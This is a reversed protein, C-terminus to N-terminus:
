SEVQKRLVKLEGDAQALDAVLCAIFNSAAILNRANNSHAQFDIDESSAAAKREFYEAARNLFLCHVRAKEGATDNAM